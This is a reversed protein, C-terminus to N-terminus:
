NNKLAEIVKNVPVIKPPETEEFHDVIPKLTVPLIVGIGGIVCSWVVVPENAM